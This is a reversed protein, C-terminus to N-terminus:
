PEGGTDEDATQESQREVQDKAVCADHREAVGRHESDAGVRRADKGHPNRTVRQETECNAGRGPCGYRGRTTQQDQAAM